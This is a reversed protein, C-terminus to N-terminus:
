LIPSRFHALMQKPSVVMAAVLLARAILVHRHYPLGPMGFDSHNTTAMTLHSGAQLKSNKLVRGLIRPPATRALGLLSGPQSASPRGKTHNESEAPIQQSTSNLQLSAEGLLGPRITIRCNECHRQNKNHEKQAIALAQIMEPHQTWFAPLESPCHLAFNTGLCM